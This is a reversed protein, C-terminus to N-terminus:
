ERTGTHLSCIFWVALSLPFLLGLRIFKKFELTVLSPASLPAGHLSVVGVWAHGGPIQDQCALAWASQLGAKRLQHRIPILWHEAAAFFQGGSDLALDGNTLWGGVNVFEVSLNEGVVSDRHRARGTSLM